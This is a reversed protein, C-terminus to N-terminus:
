TTWTLPALHVGGEGWGAASVFWDDGEVIVEAAHSAIHGVLPADQFDFPDDSRFVDTGVYGGRPGIFLYWDGDREVLFPSETGGGFTGIEPDTFATQRESWTILDDSTRYMVTHNGGAPDSTATYYMVWQDGIRIVFPDRADYGDRFLPGDLHRTWTELDPSTALNIAYEANDPGGGAYFMYFLGDNEIVHPAWLHTEGYWPDADLAFPQKTWPGTLSPATAHALQKEDLPEAPEAHTIGFMHWTGDPGQVFTHDNIYWAEDEGISPDYVLTFEGASVLDGSGSRTPPSTAGAPAGALAALVLAAVSMAIANPM